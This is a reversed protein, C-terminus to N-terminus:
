CQFASLSVHMWVWNQASMLVSYWHLHHHPEQNGSGKHHESTCRGQLVSYFVAKLTSLPYLTDRVARLVYPYRFTRWMYFMGVTVTIYTNVDTSGGTRNDATLFAGKSNESIIYLAIILFDGSQVASRVAGAPSCIGAVILIVAGYLTSSFFPM